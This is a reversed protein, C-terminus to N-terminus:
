DYNGRCHQIEAANDNRPREKGSAIGQYGPSQKGKFERPSQKPPAEPSGRRPGSCFYLFLFVGNVCRLPTLFFLVPLSLLRGTGSYAQL